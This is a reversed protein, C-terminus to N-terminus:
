TNKRDKAIKLKYSSSTAYKIDWQAGHLQCAKPSVSVIMMEM